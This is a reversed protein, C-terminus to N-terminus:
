PFWYFSHKGPPPPTQVMQGGEPNARTSESVLVQRSHEHTHTAAMFQLTILRPIDCILIICDVSYILKEKNVKEAM